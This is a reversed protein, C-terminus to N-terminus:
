GGSELIPFNVFQAESGCQECRGALMPPLEFGRLFVLILRGPVFKRDANEPLWAAFSVEPELAALDSQWTPCFLPLSDDIAKAVDPWGEEWPHESLDYSANECYIELVRNVFVNDYRRRFACVALIDNWDVDDTRSGIGGDPSIWTFRLGAETPEGRFTVQPSGTM